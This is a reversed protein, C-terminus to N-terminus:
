FWIWPDLFFEGVQDIDNNREEQLLACYDAIVSKKDTKYTRIEKQYSVCAIAAVEGNSYSGGKETTSSMTLTMIWTPQGDVAYLIPNEAKWKLDNVLGEAKAKAAKNNIPAGNLEFFTIEETRTDMLYVRALSSDTSGYNKCSVCWQAEGQKNWTLWIDSSLKFLEQKDGLGLSAWFGNAYGGYWSVRKKFVNEPVVRDVWEPVEDKKYFTIEGTTPEVMAIGEIKDASWGIIPKSITCIWWGKGADDVEFNMESINKRSYGHLWLHRRLDKNFYASPSYVIEQSVVDKASALEDQANIVVYGPISKKFMWQFPGNFELAGAFVIEDGVRQASVRGIHYSAGLSDTALVREGRIKAMNESLALIKKTDDKVEVLENKWSVKKVPVERIIRRYADDQFIGSYVLGAWAITVLAILICIITSQVGVEDECKAAWILNFIAAGFFPLWYGHFPGTLPSTFLYFGCALLIFTLSFRSRWSHGISTIAAIILLAIISGIM